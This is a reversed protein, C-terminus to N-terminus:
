FHFSISGRLQYDPVVQLATNDILVALQHNGLRVLLFGIDLNLAVHLVLEVEDLAVPAILRDLLHRDDHAAVGARGELM